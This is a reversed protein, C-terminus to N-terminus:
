LFFAPVLLGVIAICDAVIFFDVTNCSEGIYSECMKTSEENFSARHYLYEFYATESFHCVKASIMDAGRVFDQLSQLSFNNIDELAKGALLTLTDLNM